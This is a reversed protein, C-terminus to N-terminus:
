GPTLASGILAGGLFGAGAGLALGTGAGMGGSQPQQNYYVPAGAPDPFAPVQACAAILDAVSAAVHCSSSGNSRVRPHLLPM